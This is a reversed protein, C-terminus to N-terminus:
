NIVAINIWYERPVKHVLQSFLWVFEEIFAEKNNLNM